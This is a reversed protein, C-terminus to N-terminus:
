ATEALAALADRLHEADTAASRAAELNVGGIRVEFVTGFGGQGVERVWQLKAGPMDWEDPAIPM